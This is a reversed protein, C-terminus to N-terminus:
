QKRTAKLYNLINEDSYDILDYDKLSCYYAGDRIDVAIDSICRMNYKEQLNNNEVYEMVNMKFDDAVIDLAMYTLNSISSPNDEALEMSRNLVENESLYYKEILEQYDIMKNLEAILQEASLNSVKKAKAIEQKKAIIRQTIKM